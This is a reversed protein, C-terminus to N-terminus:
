KVRRNVSLLRFAVQSPTGGKEAHKEYVVLVAGAGDSAVAPRTEEAGTTAVPIGDPDLSKFGEVRAAILDSNVFNTMKEGGLHHRQWVVISQKGDWV